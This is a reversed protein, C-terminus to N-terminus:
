GLANAYTETLVDDSQLPTEYSMGLMPSNSRGAVYSMGMGSTPQEM